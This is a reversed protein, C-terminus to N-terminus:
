IDKKYFMKESGKMSVFFIVLSVVLLSVYPQLSMITEVLLPFGPDLDNFIIVEDEHMDLINVLHDILFYIGIVLGFLTIVSASIFSQFTYYILLIVSSMLMTLCILIIIDEWQYIYHPGNFFMSVILMVLYQFTIILLATVITYYYRSKILMGKSVPLSVIFRNVSSKDDYYFSTIIFAIIVIGFLFYPPITGIYFFAMMFAIFIYTFIGNLMFHQKILYFM